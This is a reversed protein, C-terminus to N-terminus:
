GGFRYRLSAGYTRPPNYNRNGYGLQAVNLGQVVYLEDSLNRGWLAFEWPGDNPALAIRANYIWHADSAILPDNLADKFVDDTYSADGQLTLMLDSTLAVGYRAGATFTLEPANPLRNGARVPGNTTTFAGLEADLWGIRATLDLAAIPSWTVDLDAGLIEAEDINDLKQIPLPVSDFRVFSQFNQYDYYFLSADIRLAGGALRAKAGIEYATLEEPKYPRLQDNSTTIGSFFGGSKTGRSVTAYLLSDETPAYELGFRWSWNEDSITEDRFTVQAQAGPVPACLLAPGCILSMGLPNLDRTGGAFSREEWTFRLGTVLSLRDSLAWEGHAFVAASDTEQHATTLTRTLFLFDHFGPTNVDVEDHSVFAGMVWALSGTDGTLRLEQSVQEIADGQIFDTQAAPAADTDIFFVRDHSRYGTVSTLTAFDLDINVRATADWSEIDYFADTRWDGVYPDGDVDTYGFVDSCRTNDIRGALVPACPAFPPGIPLATAPNIAGWFEPQGMESNARAGELKLLVDVAASPRWLAQARGAYVERQGLTQGPLLRSRWYGEDQWVGRAAFRLSLADSLPVNLMAEAEATEYDGYGAMLAGEFVDTPAQTIINIAGATSNRGYLTGEPGKLVEVRAIDFLETNMMATSALYVEDVYIGASASNTASFDDLGVGRITVVPMAGPVQEKIDINGIQGALDTIQAVRNERLGEAGLTSVNLGIDLTREERRQATVVIDDEAAQAHATGTMVFAGGFMGVLATTGCLASRWVRALARQSRRM